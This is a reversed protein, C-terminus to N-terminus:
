EEDKYNVDARADGGLTNDLLNACELHRNMKAMQLLEM